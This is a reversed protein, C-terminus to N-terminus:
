SQGKKLGLMTGIPGSSIQNLAPEVQDKIAGVLEIIGDLKTNMEDVLLRTKECNLCEGGTHADATADVLSIDTATM